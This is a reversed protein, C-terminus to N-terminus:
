KGQTIIWYRNHALCLSLQQFSLPLYSPVPWGLPFTSNVAGKCVTLHMDCFAAPSSAWPSNYLMVIDSIRPSLTGEPASFMICDRLFHHLLWSLLTMWTPLPSNKFFITQILGKCINIWKEKCGANRLLGCEQKVSLSLSAPFLCPCVVVFPSFSFKLGSLHCKSDTSRFEITNHSKHRPSFLRLISLNGTSKTQNLWRM